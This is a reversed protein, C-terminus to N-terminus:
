TEQSMHFVIHIGEPIHGGLIKVVDVTLRPGDERLHCWDVAVTHVTKQEPHKALWVKIWSGFAEVITNTQEYDVLMWYYCDPIEETFGGLGVQRFQRYTKKNFGIMRPDKFAVMPGNGWM